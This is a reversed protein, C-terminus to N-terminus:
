SRSYIVCSIDVRSHHLILVAAFLLLHDFFCSVLFWFWTFKCVQLSWIHLEHTCATKCKCLFWSDTWKTSFFDHSGRFATNHDWVATHCVFVGCIIDFWAWIGGVDWYFRLYHTYDDDEIAPWFSFMSSSFPHVRWKLECLSFQTLKWWSYTVTWNNTEVMLSVSCYSGAIYNNWLKTAWTGIPELGISTSLCRFVHYGWM